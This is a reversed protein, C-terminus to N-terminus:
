RAMPTAASCNSLLGIIQAYFRAADFLCTM